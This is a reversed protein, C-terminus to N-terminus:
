IKSNLKEYIGQECLEGQDTASYCCTLGVCQRKFAEMASSHVM